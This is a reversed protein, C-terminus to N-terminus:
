ITENTISRLSPQLHFFNAAQNMATADDPLPLIEASIWGGYSCDLLAHLVAAFHIHGMGPALRNSDSFHVYGIRSGAKRISAAIDVEEINMHFTDALLKINSHGLQDLVALGDDISNILNTEYRNIPELLIPVGQSLGYDACAYLAKLFNECQRTQELNSGSLKGRVGGIIVASQGKSALRIHGFIREIGAQLCQSDDTALCLQEHLCSQGTAIASLGLDYEALLPVLRDALLDNPDRRSLEVAQFGASVATALGEELRGAYLLPGFISTHPSIAVSFRIDMSDYYPLCAAASPPPEFFYTDLMAVRPMHRGHEYPTKLWEDLIWEARESTVIQSGMCLINADNHARSLHASFVDDVLAARV